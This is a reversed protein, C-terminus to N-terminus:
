CDLIARAGICLCAGCTWKDEYINMVTKYVTWVNAYVYIHMWVCMHTCAFAWPENPAWKLVWSQSPLKREETGRMLYKEMTGGSRNSM